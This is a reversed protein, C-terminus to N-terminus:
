GDCFVSFSCYTTGVKGSIVKYDKLREPHDYVDRAVATCCVYVCGNVRGVCDAPVADDIVIRVEEKRVRQPDGVGEGRYSCKPCCVPTTFYGDAQSHWTYGCENCKWLNM